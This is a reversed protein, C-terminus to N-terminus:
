HLLNGRSAIEEGQLNSTGIVIYTKDMMKVTALSLVVEHEEFGDYRGIVEWTKPSYLLLEYREGWLIPARDTAEEQSILEIPRSVCVAYTQTPEHRVIFKASCHLPVTRM